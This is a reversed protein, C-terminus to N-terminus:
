GPGLIAGIMPDWKISYLRTVLLALVSPVTLAILVSLWFNEPM